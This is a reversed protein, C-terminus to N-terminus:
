FIVAMANLSDIRRHSAAARHCALLGLPGAPGSGGVETQWYARDPGRASRCQESPGGGGVLHWGPHSHDTGTGNRVQGSKFGPEAAARRGAPAVSGALEAVQRRM